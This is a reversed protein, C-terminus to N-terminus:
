RMVGRLYYSEALGSGGVGMQVDAQDFSMAAYFDAGNVHLCVGPLFLLLNHDHFIDKNHLQHLIGFTTNIFPYATAITERHRNETIRSKYDIALITTQLYLHLQIQKELAERIGPVTGEIQTWIFANIDYTAEFYRCWAKVRAM